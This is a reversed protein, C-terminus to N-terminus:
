FTNVNSCLGCGLCFEQGTPPHDIGLPCQGTLKKGVPGAPCPPLEMSRLILWSNHCQNCFHTNGFCFFVAVSCCYRCKYEIFDEGHTACNQFPFFMSSLRNDSKHFYGEPISIAEPIPAASTKSTGLLRTCKFMTWLRLLVGAGNTSPQGKSSMKRDNTQWM